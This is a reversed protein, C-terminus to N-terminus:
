IRIKDISGPRLRLLVPREEWCPLIIIRGAPGDYDILQDPHFHGMIITRCRNAQMFDEAAARNLVGKKAPNRPRYAMKMAMAEAFGEPVLKAFLRFARSRTIFRFLSYSADTRGLTDGHTCIVGTNGLIVPGRVVEFGGQELAPGAMFDRNGHIFWCKREGIASSLSQLSSVFARPPNGGREYWFDFLDGLVVLPNGPGRLADLFLPLRKGEPDLHIDAAVTFEGGELRVPEPM